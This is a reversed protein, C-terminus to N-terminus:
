PRRFVFRVHPTVAELGSGNIAEGWLEGRVAVPDAAPGCRTGGLALRRSRVRRTPLLAGPNSRTRGVQPPPFYRTRRRTFAAASGGPRCAITERVSVRVRAVGGDRDLGVTTGRLAPVHLRVPREDAAESTGARGLQLGGATALVITASPPSADSRPVAIRERRDAGHGEATGADPPPAPSVPDAQRPPADSRSGDDDGACGAALVVGAWIALSWRM